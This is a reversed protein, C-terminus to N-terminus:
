FASGFALAEAAAQAPSGFFAPGHGPLVVSAPLGALTTLSQRARQLDGHFMEPLLQPGDHPSTPHATVLADGAVLVGHEVLLFGLHGRTHGPLPLPRVAVGLTARLEPVDEIATVSTPPVVELGGAEVAHSVWDAVGPRELHPQVDALGVQELVERRVNPIEDRSALIDCEALGAIFSANGIHDSHGHTLLIAQVDEVAYGLAGLTATVAAGDGPYGTDILIPGLDGEVIVWNVSPGQVLHVRDAVTTSRTTGNPVADLHAPDSQSM